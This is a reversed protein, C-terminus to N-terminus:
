IVKGADEQWSAASIERMLRNMDRAKKTWEERITWKEKSRLQIPQYPNTAMWDSWKQIVAIAETSPIEFWELHPKLCSRCYIRIRRHDLEAHCLAEVRRVNPIAATTKLPIPYLAKSARNCDFDWDKLREEVSRTTYGIKVFGPNGEVEYMYVQGDKRDKDQLEKTMERKVIDYSSKYDSLRDSRVIIEFPSTNYAAPWYTSLDGDFKPISLSESKLILGDSRNSSPSEPPGQTNPAESPGSVEEPAGSEALKVPHETLIGMISSKWLAVKRLSPENIHQSCYMNTELIKLFGELYCDNLYVDPKVIENVTSACNDVQQGGIRQECRSDISDGSWICKTSELVLAKRIGKELLIASIAASAEGIPFEKVWAEIREQKALGSDHSTCHVLKALKDLATELEMSSQTLNVMSELQSSVGARNAAPSWNRCPQKLKTSAGCLKIDLNLRTRLITANIKAEPPQKDLATPASSRRSPTAPHSLASPVAGALRTEDGSVGPIEPPSNPPSPYPIHKSNLKQPEPSNGLCTSTEGKESRTPSVM